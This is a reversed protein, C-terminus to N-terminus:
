SSHKKQMFPTLNDFERHVFTEISKAVQRLTVPPHCSPSLVPNYGLLRKM